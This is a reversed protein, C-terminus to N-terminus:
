AGFRFTQEGLARPLDAVSDLVLDPSVASRALEESRFKGTRVLAGRLGARQAGGVDFELDDGVMIAERPPVGLTRLANTFFEPAPKGALIARCDAAYELAAAFPGQDLRLLGDPGRYYRNRALTVFPVGAILTRFAGNLLEYTTEEGLDGLVVAQPSASEEEVGAFDERLSDRVLLRARTWGRELLLARAARPATFIREPDSPLGIEGLERALASRPRSTMNTVFAFPVGRRRLKEFAEAAGPVPRGTECITGEVDCLVARVQPDSTM